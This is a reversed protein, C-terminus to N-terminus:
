KGVYITFTSFLDLIAMDTSWGDTYLYSSTQNVIKCEHDLNSAFTKEDYNIKQEDSQVFRKCM